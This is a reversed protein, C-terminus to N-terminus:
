IARVVGVSYLFRGRNEGSVCLHKLFHLVVRQLVNLPEDRRRWMEEEYKASLGMSVWDEHDIYCFM